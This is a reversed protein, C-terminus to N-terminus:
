GCSRRRVGWVSLLMLLALWDFSGGGGGGGGGGGAGPNSSPYRFELSVNQSSSVGDNVAVTVTDTGSGGSVPTYQFLGTSAELTFTGQKAQQVVQYTLPDGDADQGNLRSYIATSPTIDFQNGSLTPTTNTLTVQVSQVASVDVRDTVDYSVADTGVTSGSPEFRFEGTAANVLTLTGKQPASVIRFTLPDGDPDSGDLHASQAGRWHFSLTSTTAVPASNTLTVTIPQAASYQFGDYARAAFTDVGKQDGNATYRLTGASRDLWTVAGKSPLGALEFSVTDGDADSAMLTLDASGRWHLSRSLPEMVPLKNTGMDLLELASSGGIFYAAKGDIATRVLAGTEGLASNSTATQNVVTQTNLDYVVFSSGCTFAITHPGHDHVANIAGACVNYTAVSDLTDGNLVELVGDARGAIIQLHGSGLVDSATASLYNTGATSLDQKDSWRIRHVAGSVAVIDIGPAGVDTVFTDYVGGWYTTLNASKWIVTGTAPDIVYVFIGPAGTHARGGGAIIEPKGDGDLDAVDLSYLPAGTDFLYQHKVAHTKGDLIFLTGDYLRDTAVLIEPQPDGDVNAIRLAHIGTWATGGFTSPTSQWELAHTKADYISLLGDGYGSLSESSATAFELQGDGDLDGVDLAHFPGGFDTSTWEHALTALDHVYLVDEGTSSWGAGWLLEPRGDNDADFVAIDTVGHEPNGLRWLEAGDAASLAHISGWQGDGYLVEVKGDGNVDILRLADINLDTHHEWKPSHLDLDWARIYYWSEAAVLEAKGDGDLDTLAVFFGFPSTSWKVTTAAPTVELVEGINLVIENTGDGDVDGVAMRAGGHAVTRRLTLGAPDYIFLANGSLAVMDVAGDNDADAIAFDTIPTTTPSLTTVTERTLVNVVDITGNSRGVWVRKAGATEVVRLATITTAPDITSQWLLDYRQHKSDYHAISWFLNASFGAGGGLVFETDGNNDVDVPWIGTSGIGSGWTLVRWQEEYSPPHAVAAQMASRATVHKKATVRAAPAASVTSAVAPADTNYTIHRGDTTRVVRGSADTQSPREAASVGGVIVWSLAWAVCVVRIADM